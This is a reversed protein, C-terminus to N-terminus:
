ELRHDHRERHVDAGALATVTVKWTVSGNGGDPLNLVTNDGYASDAAGAPKVQKDVAWSHTIQSAGSASKEVTLEPNPPTRRISASARTASRRPSAAATSRRHSDRSGVSRRRATNYFYVYAGDGGKVIVAEVEVTTTSSRGTSRTSGTSSARSAHHQDPRRQLRSRPRERRDEHQGRRGHRGSVDPQRGPLGSECPRRLGAGRDRCGRDVLTLVGVLGVLGSPSTRTENAQGHSGGKGRQQQRAVWPLRPFSRCEPDSRITM